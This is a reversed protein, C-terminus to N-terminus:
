KGGIYHINGFLHIHPAILNGLVIMAPSNDSDYALVYRSATFNKSFIFGLIFINEVAETSYSLAFKDVEVDEQALLFFANKEYAPFRWTDEFVDYIKEGKFDTLDGIIAHADQQNIVKFLIGGFEMTEFPPIAPESKRM